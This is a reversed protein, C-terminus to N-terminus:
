GRRHDRYLGAPSPHLGASRLLWRVSRPTAHDAIRSHAPVSARSAILVPHRDGDRLGRTHVDGADLLHDAPLLRKAALATQIPATRDVDATMAPTTEVNAILHVEDDECTETLPVKYGTWTTSRKHGFSAEHDYPSDIRQGAPPLDKAKRWRVRGQDLYFQRLWVRRLIEVAPVQGLWEPAAPGTADGRAVGSFDNFIGSGVASQTRM